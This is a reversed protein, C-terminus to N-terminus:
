HYQETTYHGPQTRKHRHLGRAELWARVEKIMASNGCLMLHSDEATIEADAARQLEGQELLQTIRGQLSGPRQERTLTSTFSFRQGYQEKLKALTEPYALEGSHRAGQVLIIREFREWPEPTKLISLYVGLATGTALMWLHRRSVVNDMTFVGGAKASVWVRDGSRLDSLRPTLPGEPVENFYIELPREDPANVLSYPRGVRKEDIDLAVKIYQGAVFSPLPADINLSYLNDSWHRLGVVRGEIWDETM